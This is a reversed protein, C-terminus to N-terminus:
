RATQHRRIPIGKSAHLTPGVRKATVKCHLLAKREVAEFDGRSGRRASSSVRNLRVNCYSHAWRTSEHYGSVPRRRVAVFSRPAHALPCVVMMAEGAAEEEEQGMQKSSGASSLLRNRILPLCQMCPNQLAHRSLIKSSTSSADDDGGGLGWIYSGGGPSTPLPSLPLSRSKESTSIDPMGVCPDHGM